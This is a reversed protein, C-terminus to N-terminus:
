REARVNPESRHAKLAHTLEDPAVQLQPRTQRLRSVADRDTPM